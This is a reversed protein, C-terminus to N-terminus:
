PKRKRKMEIAPEEPLPITEGEKLAVSHYRKGDVVFIANYSKLAFTGTITIDEGPM